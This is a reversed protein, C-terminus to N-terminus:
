GQLLLSSTLCARIYCTGKEPRPAAGLLPVHGCVFGVLLYNLISLLVKQM